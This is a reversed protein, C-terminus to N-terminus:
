NNGDILGYIKEIENVNTYDTKKTNDILRNMLNSDNLLACIGEACSKNELPVIMGDYGHKLQDKSTPFDTIVVPKNLVQAERVAVCKGEYRSPQCYLNCMKMYPYPNERKGLIVVYKEMGAKAIEKKITEEEPGFGILYWKVNLKKERIIKCIWPVNDFNKAYVFRGVSLIRIEGNQPMEKEVDSKIAQNWIYNKSLINEIVCIKKKIEPFIEKLSGACANSVAVINDIGEFERLMAKKNVSHVKYDTHVWGIRKKANVKEKIYDYPLFFSLALDYEKSLPKACKRMINAWTEDHNVSKIVSLLMDRIRYYTAYFCGHKIKTKLSERLYALEKVEPLVNVRNDILPMLSGHHGYLFFDVEYKDYNIAGLLGLLSTEIGGLEMAGTFVVLIQKKEGRM